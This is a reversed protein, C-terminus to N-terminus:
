WAEYEGADAPEDETKADTLIKISGKKFHRMKMEFPIWNEKAKEALTTQARWLEEHRGSDLNCNLVKSLTLFILYFLLGLISLNKVRALIDPLNLPQRTQQGMQYTGTEECWSKTYMESWISKKIM